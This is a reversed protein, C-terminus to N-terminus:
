FDIQLNFSLGMLGLNGHDQSFYSYPKFFDNMDLWLSGEFQLNPALRVTNNRFWTEWGLGFAAELNVRIADDHDYSKSYYPLQANFPSSVEFTAGSKQKVHYHGYLLSGAFNGLFSWNGTFKYDFNTGVRAGVGWFDDYLKANISGVQSVPTGNFDITVDGYNTSKFQTYIFAGRLGIYPHFIIRPTMSFQRGLMLDLVFYNMRWSAKTKESLIFSHPSYSIALGKNKDINGKTHDDTDGYFYTTYFSVDWNDHNPLYRGLGVRVGSNWNFDPSKVKVKYATDSGTSEFTVIDGYELDGLTPRLLLYSEELFWGQDVNLPFNTNLSPDAVPQTNSRGGWGEMSSNMLLASSLLLIWKNM